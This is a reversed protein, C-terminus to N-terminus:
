ANDKRRFKNIAVQAEHFSHCTQTSSGKKGFYDARTREEHAENDYYVTIKYNPDQM